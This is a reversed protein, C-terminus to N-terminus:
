VSKAYDQLSYVSGGHPPALIDKNHPHPTKLIHFHPDFFQTKGLSATRQKKQHSMSSSMQQVRAPEEEEEEEEGGIEPTETVLVFDAPAKNGGFLQEINPESSDIEPLNWDTERSILTCTQKKLEKHNKFLREPVGHGYAM